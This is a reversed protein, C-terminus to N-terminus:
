GKEAVSQLIQRLKEATPPLARGARMVIGIRRTLAEGRIRLRHLRDTWAMSEPLIGVGLGAQAMGNVSSGYTAEYGVNAVLGERDFALDVVQRSSSDKGMLVLAHKALERVSISNKRALPHSPSVVACMRDMLLVHSTLERDGTTQSSIGFDVHGARVMATVTAAVCDHVRVRIGPHSEALKKIARPLLGSAMSPLSAVTVLGRRHERLEDASSAVAEVEILIRELPVLLDRGAPTLAVHRKSRDFLKVGVASELHQIQVTLTPQSMHLEAAARTFSGARALALFARIHRIDHLMRTKYNLFIIVSIM